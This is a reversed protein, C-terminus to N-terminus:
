SGVVENSQGNIISVHQEINAVIKNLDQTLLDTVSHLVPDLHSQEIVPDHQLQVVLETLLSWQQPEVGVGHGPKRDENSSHRVINDQIGISRSSENSTKMAESSEVVTFLLTISALTRWEELIWDDIVLSIM